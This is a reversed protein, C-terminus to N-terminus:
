CLEHLFVQCPVLQEVHIRFRQDFEAEVNPCIGKRRRVVDASPSLRRVETTTQTAQTASRQVMDECSTWPYSISFVITRSFITISPTMITHQELHCLMDGIKDRTHVARGGEKWGFTVVSFETM